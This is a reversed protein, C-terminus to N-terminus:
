AHAAHGRRTREANSQGEGEPTRGSPSHGISGGGGSPVAGRGPPDLPLQDAAPVAESELRRLEAEFEALSEFNRYVSAFRIAAVRDLAVLGRLALEGIRESRATGGSRRVDAAIREVIAELEPVAVPRKTAARTLGALLKERSFAERRGDRKLVRLPAEEAREYTTFRARCEECERRRRVADGPETLRSDVVRTSLSSCSPCWVSRIRCSRATRQGCIYLM